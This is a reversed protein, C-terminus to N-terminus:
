IEAKENTESFEIPRPTRIFDILQDKTDFEYKYTHTHEKDKHMIDVTIHLYYIPLDIKNRIDTVLRDCDLNSYSHTMRFYHRATVNTVYEVSIDDMDIDEDEVTYYWYGDTYNLPKMQKAVGRQNESYLSQYIDDPDPYRVIRPRTIKTAKLSDMIYYGLPSQIFRYTNYANLWDLRRIKVLWIYLSKMDNVSQFALLRGTPKPTDTELQKMAKNWLETLKTQYDSPIGEKFETESMRTELSFLRLFDIENGCRRELRSNGFTFSETGLFLGMVQSM